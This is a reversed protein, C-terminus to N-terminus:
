QRRVAKILKNLLCVPHHRRRTPWLQGEGVQKNGACDRCACCLHPAQLASFEVATIQTVCAVQGQLRQRQRQVSGLDLQLQLARPAAFVLAIAGGGPQVARTTYM